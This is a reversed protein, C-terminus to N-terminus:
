QRSSLLLFFHLIRFFLWLWEANQMSHLIRFFLWLWEANQLRHDAVGRLGGRMEGKAQHESDAKILARDVRL